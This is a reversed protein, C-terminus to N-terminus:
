LWQLSVHVHHFHFPWGDGYAITNLFRNYETTTIVHDNKMDLATAELLPAIVQDVGVVRLRSSRGLAVIFYVQRELDVIHTRSASANCFNGDNSGGSADCIVGGNNEGDTQFYALDANGGQDHTSEPHRPVGVDYGPTIADRQCLDLAGLWTTGPYQRAVEHYAYRILMLMERRLYRYNSAHEPNIQAYDDNPDTFPVEILTQSGVSGSTCQSMTYGAGTCSAGDEWDFSTAYITYSGTVSSRAGTVKVYYTSATDGSYFSASEEVTENDRWGTSASSPRPDVGPFRGGLATGDSRYAYVDLDATSPDPLAVLVEVIQNAPVDIRFWDSDGSCRGGVMATGVPLTTATGQSDNPEHTDASCAPATTCSGAICLEGAGCAGTPNTTSCDGIGQTGGTTMTTGGGTPWCTNDGDCAYGDRCDDDSECGDICAPFSGGAGDDFNFCVGDGSCGDSCDSVVEFCYGGAFGSASGDSRTEAVCAGSGCDADETCPAGIPVDHTTVTGSDRDDGSGTDRRDVGGDVTDDDDGTTDDGTSDDGTSDDGTSDDDGTTSGKGADDGASSDDDDDGSPSRGNGQACGMMLLLALFGVISSIRM